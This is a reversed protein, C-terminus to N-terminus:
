GYDVYFLLFGRDTFYGRCPCSKNLNSMRLFITDALWDGLVLISGTLVAPKKRKSLPPNTPPYTETFGCNLQGLQPNTIIIYM